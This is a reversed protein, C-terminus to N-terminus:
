NFALEYLDLVILKRQRKARIQINRESRRGKEEEHLSKLARLLVRWCVGLRVPYQGFERLFRVSM